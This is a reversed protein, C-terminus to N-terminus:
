RYRSEIIRTVRHIIAGKITHPKGCIPLKICATVTANAFYWYLTLLRVCIEKLTQKRLVSLYVQLYRVLFLISGKRAHKLSPLCHSSM